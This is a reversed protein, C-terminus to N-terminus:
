KTSIVDHRENENNQKKLVKPRHLYVQLYTYLFHTKAKFVCAPFKKLTYYEVSVAFHVYRTYPQKNPKHPWELGWVFSDEESNRQTLIEIVECAWSAVM